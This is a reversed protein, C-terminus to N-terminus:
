VYLDYVAYYVNAKVDLRLVYMCKVNEVNPGDM